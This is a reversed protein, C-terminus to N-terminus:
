KWQHDPPWINSARRGAGQPGQVRWEQTTDRFKLLHPTQTHAQFAAEDKYVEYLWIRNADNADQIVDFRLCGLEDRVSSRADETVAAIFQDKYGEKIQIPAIIVYM